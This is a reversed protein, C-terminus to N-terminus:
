GEGAFERRREELVYTLAMNADSGEKFYLGKLKEYDGHISTDRTGLTALMAAQYDPDDVDGNTLNAKAEAQILYLEPVRLVPVNNIQNQNPYKGCSSFIELKQDSASSLYIDRRIDNRQNYFLATVTSSVRCGYSGFMNNISNASLNDSTTFNVTLIDEKTPASITRYQELFEQGDSVLEKNAGNPLENLAKQASEFAKNFLDASNAVDGYAQELYLRAQLTLAMCLSPFYAANATAYSKSSSEFLAIADTLEDHMHAYTEALSAIELTSNANIANDSSVPKNKPVLIIGNMNAPDPVAYPQSSNAASYPLCYYQTLIYEAFVKVTLATAKCKDLTRRDNESVDPRLKECAEVVKAAAAVIQYSGGWITSIESLSSSINWMEIDLLHGSNGAKTTLNDTILDGIVPLNRGTYASTAFYLMLGVTAAEINSTTTLALDNSVATTPKRDLFEPSCSNFGLMLLALGVIALSKINKM